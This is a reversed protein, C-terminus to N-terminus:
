RSGNPQAYPNLLGSMAKAHTPLESEVRLIDFHIRHCTSWIDPFIHKTIKVVNGGYKRAELIAKELTIDWTCPVGFGQDGFASKGLYMASSPTADLLDLVIVEDLYDLTPYQQQITTSVKPM